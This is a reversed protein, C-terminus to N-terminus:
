RADKAPGPAPAHPPTNGEANLAALLGEHLASYTAGHSSVPADDLARLEDLLSDVETDGTPVPSQPRSESAAPM